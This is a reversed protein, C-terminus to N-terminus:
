PTFSLSSLLTVADEHSCPAQFFVIYDSFAASALSEGNHHSLTWHLASSSVATGAPRDVDIGKLYRLTVQGFSSHYTLAVSAESPYAYSEIEAGAEELYSSELLPLGLVAKLQEGRTFLLLEDETLDPLPASEFPLTSVVPQSAVHPEEMAPRPLFFFVATLMMATALLVSVTRPVARSTRRPADKRLTVKYKMMDLPMRQKEVGQAAAEFLIRDVQDANYRM